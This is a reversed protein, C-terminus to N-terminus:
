NPMSASCHRWLNGPWCGCSTSLRVPLMGGYYGKGKPPFLHKTGYRILKSAQSIVLFLESTGSVKCAVQRLGAVPLRFPLSCDQRWTWFSKM